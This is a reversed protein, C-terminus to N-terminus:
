KEVETRLATILECHEPHNSMHGNRCELMEKAHIRIYKHEKSFPVSIVFMNQEMYAASSYGVFLLGLELIVGEEGILRLM